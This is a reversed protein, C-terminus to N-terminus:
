DYFGVAQLEEIAEDLCRIIKHRWANPETTMTVAMAKQDESSKGDSFKCEWACAATEYSVHKMRIDDRWERRNVTVSFLIDPTGKTTTTRKDMRQFIPEIGKMRLFSIIQKQLDRENKIAAKAVTEAATQGAKGLKARDEPAVKSLMHEPLVKSLM